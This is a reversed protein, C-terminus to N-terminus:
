RRVRLIRDKDSGCSGRGDCNSTTLYLHGDPGMVAERLRGFQDQLYVEHKTLAGNALQVRHLHRSGLTAVIVSGNWESISSGTYVALGGPPAATEFALLPLVTGEVPSCADQQPWGLDDGARALSVEDHARRGLEGSPGHDAVVLTGDPLWDFGQLNRLGSLYVPSGAHPNDEPAAGDRTVRLLKGAPTSLDRSREPDGADGTAVYLFGDPGFRLRGGDHFRASPIDDLIVRELRAASGDVPLVWREVRNRNRGEADTTVYLFFTRSTAFDPAVALGLLGGEGSSLAPVTAIPTPELTGDARLRRVRGPRETFLLDGGPLWAIGWPVELGRAVVEVRIPVSGQPGWGGEPVLECSASRPGGDVTVSADPLGADGGDSGPPIPDPPIAGSRKCAALALTASAILIWTSLRM